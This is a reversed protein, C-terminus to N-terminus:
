SYDDDTTRNSPEGSTEKKSFSAMGHGNQFSRRDGELAATRSNNEM